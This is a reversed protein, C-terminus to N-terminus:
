IGHVLGVSSVVKRAADLTGNVYPEADNGAEHRIILKEGAMGFIIETAFGNGPLRISHLQSGNVTAGRSEKKGFTKEIPYHYVPERVQALRSALETATGSPSDIKTAGAYDIIEWQPITKAATLAFQQMLIATIAFNGGVLVGVGKARAAADIEYCATEKLGSTGIVVHVGKKIASLVHRKVVEPHTYDILVDTTVNLAEKVSGSIVLEMESINLVKGLSQGQYTRSVAGVLEFDSSEHIAHILSRGVFGTAGAVCVRIKM